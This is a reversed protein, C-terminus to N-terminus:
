LSLILTAVLFYLTLSVGDQIVTAIPGAGLAPDEKRSALLVTMAVAVVGALSVTLFMSLGVIAAVIEDGLVAMVAGSALAGIILGILGNVAIEKGLFKMVRVEGITISRMFLAQTQNGVASAMYVIVPIFFALEVVERLSAEFRGVLVSLLLGGSLGVLLWPLRRRTLFTVKGHLVDLLGRKELHIGSYRIADDIGAHQLTELIQDTGIVGQFKGKADVIPVCKIGHHIALIAARELSTKPHVSIPERKTLSAMTADLPASLVERISVVGKLRKQTDLLYIYSVSEWDHKTEILRRVSWVEQSPAAVPVRRLVAHTRQM